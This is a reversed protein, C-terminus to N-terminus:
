EARGAHGGTRIPYQFGADAACDCCGDRCVQRTQLCDEGLAARPRRLACSRRSVPMRPARQAQPWGLWGFSRQTPSATKRRRRREASQAPYGPSQTPSQDHLCAAVTQGAVPRRPSQPQQPNATLPNASESAAQRQRHPENRPAGRMGNAPTRMLCPTHKRPDGNYRLAACTCGPEANREGDAIPAERRCPQRGCFSPGAHGMAQGNAEPEQASHVELALSAIRVRGTLHTVSTEM